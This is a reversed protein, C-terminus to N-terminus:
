VVSDLEPELQRGIQFGLAAADFWDFASHPDKALAVFAALLDSERGEAYQFLFRQPGKVLTLCRQSGRKM